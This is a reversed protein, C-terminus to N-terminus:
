AGSQMPMATRRLRAVVFAALLGTLVTWVSAWFGLQAAFAAGIKAATSAEFPFKDYHTGWDGLVAPITLLAVPLRAALGYVWLTKALRAVLQKTSKAHPLLRAAFWPGFLFPLWAIGLLAGPGGVGSNALWAPAGKLELLLRVGTVALTVVAPVLVLSRTTPSATSNM